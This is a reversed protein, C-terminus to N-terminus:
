CTSVVLDQAWSLAMNIEQSQHLTKGSEWGAWGVTLFGHVMRNTVRSMLVSQTRPWKWGQYCALALTKSEWFPNTLSLQKAPLKFEVSSLFTQILVILPLELM